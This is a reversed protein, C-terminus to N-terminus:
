AKKKLAKSFRSLGCGFSIKEGKELKAVTKQPFRLLGLGFITEDDLRASGRAAKIQGPSISYM